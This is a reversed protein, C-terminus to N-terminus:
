DSSKISQLEFPKCKYFDTIEIESKQHFAVSNASIRANENTTILLSKSQYSFFVSLGM